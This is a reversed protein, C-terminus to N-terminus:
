GINCGCPRVEDGGAIDAADGLKGGMARYQNHMRNFKEVPGRTTCYRFGEFGIVASAVSFRPHLSDDLAGPPVRGRPIIPRWPDIFGRAASRARPLTTASMAAHLNAVRLKDLVNRIKPPGLCRQAPGTSLRGVTRCAARVATPV